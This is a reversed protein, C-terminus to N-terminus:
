CNPQSFPPPSAKPPINDKLLQYFTAKETGTGRQGPYSIPKTPMAHKYSQFRQAGLSLSFPSIHLVQTNSHWHVKRLRLQDYLKHATCYIPM